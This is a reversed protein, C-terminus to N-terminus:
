DSISVDIVKKNKITATIEHHKSGGFLVGKWEDFMYTVLKSSKNIVVTKSPTGCKDYLEEETMGVHIAMQKKYYSSSKVISGIILGIVAIIIVFILLMYAGLM